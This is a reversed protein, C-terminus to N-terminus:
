AAIKLHLKNPNLKREPLSHLKEEEKKLFILAFCMCYNLRFENIPLKGQKGGNGETGGLLLFKLLFYFLYYTM